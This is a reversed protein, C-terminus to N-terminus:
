LRWGVRICRHNSRCRRTQEDLSRRGVPSFGDSYPYQWIGNSCSHVHHQRPGATGASRHAARAPCGCISPRWIPSSDKAIRIAEERSCAALANWGRRQFARVLTTRLREDDDVILVTKREIEDAADIPLELIATLGEGAASEFELSGHLNEAFVGALFTGLGMGRGPEKTTFFPEGLHALTEATM